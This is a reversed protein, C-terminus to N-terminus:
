NQGGRYNRWGTDWLEARRYVMQQGDASFAGDLARNMPLQTPIGGDVSITFLQSQGRPANSRGSSFLVSKGNSSWGAVSDAVPHFTLRKPVGGTIATVYVDQNGEYDGTFAVWQGDPSISPHMEQGQFSTIRTAEGGGLSTKWIDRAYTFVLTDGSLDPERLLKVDSALVLKSSFVIPLILLWNKLETKGFPM